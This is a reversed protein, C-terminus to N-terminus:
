PAIEKLMDSRFQLLNAFTDIAARTTDQESAALLKPIWEAAVTLNARRAFVGRLSSQLSWDLQNKRSLQQYLREFIARCLAASWPRKYSMLLIFVPHKADLPKPHRKLMSFIMQEIQDGALTDDMLSVNTQIDADICAAILPAAWGPTHQREYAQVWGRLLLEHWDSAQAAALLQEVQAGGATWFALPVYGIMQMLWWSREGVTGQPKREVGDRIMAKDCSEPLTILLELKRGSFLLELKRGSKITVLPAVRAVMREVLRSQPLHGLLDAAIRRVEQGRDDLAAELFPEDDMSLNIAFSSLFAAREDAKEVSWVSALLERARAADRQRMDNLLAGRITKSGTEWQQRIAEDDAAGDIADGRAYAWADNFRALWRGREGIVGIIPLRLDSRSAGRDLLACLQDEPVRRGASALALLWEEFFVDYQGGILLSLHYASRTSCRPTTDSACADPLSGTAIEPLAGARRQQTHLAAASLLAGESNDAALQALAQGFAGAASVPAFPRRGTGVLAAAVLDHWQM